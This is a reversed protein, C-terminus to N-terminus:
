GVLYIYIYIYIYICVYMYVYIYIYIYIYLSLSLSLLGVIACNSSILVCDVCGEEGGVGVVSCPWVFRLNTYMCECECFWVVDAFV